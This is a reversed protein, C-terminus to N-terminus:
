EGLEADGEPQWRQQPSLPAFAAVADNALMENEEDIM